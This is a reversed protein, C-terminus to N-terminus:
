AATGVQLRGDCSVLVELTKWLFQRDALRGDQNSDDRGAAAAKIYDLLRTKVGSGGNTLPGPFAQMQRVVPVDRLVSSANYVRVTTGQLM